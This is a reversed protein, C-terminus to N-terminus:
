LTTCVLTEKKALKKKRLANQPPTIHRGSARARARALAVTVFHRRDAASRDDPGGVTM